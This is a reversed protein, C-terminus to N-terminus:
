HHATPLCRSMKCYPIVPNVMTTLGEARGECVSYDSCTSLCVTPHQGEKPIAQAELVTSFFGYM